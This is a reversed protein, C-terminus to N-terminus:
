YKRVKLFLNVALKLIIVRKGKAEPLFVWLTPLHKSLEPILSGKLVGDWDQPVPLSFFLFFVGELDM